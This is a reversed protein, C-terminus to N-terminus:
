QAWPTQGSRSRELYEQVARELFRAVRERGGSIVLLAELLEPAALVGFLCHETRDLYEGLAAAQQPQHALHYRMHGMGYAVHRGEDQMALVFMKREVASPAVAAAFRYLTLLGSGLMLNMALSAAPYTEAFLIEKLAQEAAVSARKLGQGGVLARKRFVELHRAQDIMQACLFSKMELFEQNIVCVWRSPMEGAAACIWACSVSASGFGFGSSSQQFWPVDVAPAWRRSKAEEYLRAVNESWVDSKRNITYGLDPLRGWIESGRPAMTYKNRLTEAIADYGYSGINTDDYTLGRQPDSPVARVPETKADFWHLTLNGQMVQNVLNFLEEDAFYDKELYFSM